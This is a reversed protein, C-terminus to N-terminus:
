FKRFSPLQKKVNKVLQTTNRPLVKISRAGIDDLGNVHEGEANWKTSGNRLSFLTLAQRLAASL